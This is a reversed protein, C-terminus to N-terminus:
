PKAKQGKSYLVCLVFIWAWPPMRVLLRDAASGRRLGSTWQSQRRTIVIVHVLRFTRIVYCYPVNVFGNNCHFLLVSDRGILRLHYVICILTMGCNPYCYVTSNFNYYLDLTLVIYFETGVYRTIASNKKPQYHLLFGLSLFVRHTSWLHVNQLLNREHLPM